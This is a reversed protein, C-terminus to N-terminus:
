KNLTLYERREVNIKMRKYYTKRRINITKM